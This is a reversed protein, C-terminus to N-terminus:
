TVPTDVSVALGEPNTFICTDNETLAPPNGAWNALTSFRGDGGNGTWIYTAAGCTGVATMVAAWVLGLRSM